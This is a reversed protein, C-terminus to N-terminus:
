ASIFLRRQKLQGPSNMRRENLHNMNLSRLLGLGIKEEESYILAKGLGLNIFKLSSSLLLQVLRKTM